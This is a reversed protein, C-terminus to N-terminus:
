NLRSVNASRYFPYKRFYFLLIKIHRCIMWVCFTIAMGIWKVLVCKLVTGNCKMAFSTFDNIIENCSLWSKLAAFKRRRLWDFHMYCNFSNSHQMETKYIEKDVRAFNNSCSKLNSTQKTAIDRRCDECIIASNAICNQMTWRGVYKNEVMFPYLNLKPM